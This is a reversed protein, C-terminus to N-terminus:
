MPCLGLVAGLGGLATVAGRGRHRPISWCPSTPHEMGVSCVMLLVQLAQPTPHSSSIGSHACVGLLCLISVSSIFCGRPQNSTIALNLQLTPELHTGMVTLGHLGM